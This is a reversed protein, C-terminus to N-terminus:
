LLHYFYYPGQGGDWVFGGMQYHNIKDVRTRIFDICPYFLYLKNSKWYCEREPQKYFYDFERSGM